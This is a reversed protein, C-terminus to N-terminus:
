ELRQVRKLAVALRLTDFFEQFLAVKGDRVQFMAIYDQDYTLGTTKVGCTNRFRGVYWGPEALPRLTLDYFRAGDMREHAPRWRAIIQEKGSYREHIFPMEFVADDTLAERVGDWDQSSQCDMLRQVIEQDERLRDIAM